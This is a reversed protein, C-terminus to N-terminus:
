SPRISLRKAAKRRRNRAANCARCKRHPRGRADIEIRLNDGSYPHNQPCHTKRANIQFAGNGRRLNEQQTVIEMHEPNVCLRVRCLHDVQMGAPIAAVLTEYFYRHAARGSISGYGSNNVSGSYIWCGSSDVTYRNLTAVSITKGM